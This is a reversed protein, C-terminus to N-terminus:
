MTSLWTMNALAFKSLNRAQSGPPNYQIKLSITKPAVANQNPNNSKQCEPKPGRTGLGIKLNSTTSNKLIHSM